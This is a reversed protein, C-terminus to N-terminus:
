RKVREDVCRQWRPDARLDSLLPESEIKSLPYGLDLAKGLCEVAQERRGLQEYGHGAQFLAEANDPDRSLIEELLDLARENEGLTQYYGALRSLLADDKPTLVRQEEALEAARRFSRGCADQDTGQRSQAAAFNGWIRYDHDHLALAQSYAELAAADDGSMYHLTGLNSWANYSPKIAISRELLERAEDLRQQYLYVGALDSYGVYFNEPALEIVKEFEAVAEEFRFQRAHFLGLKRHGQWDDPRIAIALKLVSDAEDVRGTKAYCDGLERLARINEPERRLVDGLLEQALDCRELERHIVALAIPPGSLTPDLAGARECRSLAPAIWQEERSWLYRQWLAEGLGLEALAYDPDKSLALEFFSVSRDVAELKASRQMYDLDQMFGLGKLYYEQALSVDTGGSRLREREQVSLQVQLMGVLRNLLDAQLASARGTSDVFVESGLIRHTEPDALNLTLTLRDEHRQVSGAVALNVGFVQRAEMPSGIESRRVDAAPVVWFADRFGELHMLKSSLYEHLGDGLAQTEADGGITAFPLVALYKREPLDQGGSGGVRERMRPGLALWLALAVLLGAPAWRLLLSRRTRRRVVATQPDLGAAAALALRLSAADPFRRGPDKQLSRALLRRLGGSFTSDGTGDEELGEPQEHCIAYILAPEHDGRFAKRGTLMEYLLAGLSWIDSRADVREGRAQEPSMYAATGVAAGLRTLEPSRATKALGFDMIVAKGRPTIMVNAPKIARHVVGKGHAEELGEAIQMAFDLALGPDMPGEALLDRLTRGELCAMAIYVQGDAEDIEHVTCINPHDLSAAARAENFFRSRDEQDGILSPSLFKLAVERQLRTDEARFVRGMGGEGLLSLIRYHSITKGILTQTL